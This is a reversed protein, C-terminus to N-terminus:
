DDIDHDVPFYPKEDIFSFGRSSTTVVIGFAPAPDDLKKADKNEETKEAAPSSSPLSPEKRALTPSPAKVM